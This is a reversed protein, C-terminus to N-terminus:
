RNKSEESTSLPQTPTIETSETGGTTGHPETLQKIWWRFAAHDTRVSTRARHGGDATGMRGHDDLRVPHRLTFMTFPLRLAATLTLTARLAIGSGSQQYGRDLHERLMGAWERAGSAALDTLRTDLDDGRALTNAPDTTVTATVLYLDRGPVTTVVTAAAAPDLQLPDHPDHGPAGGSQVILLRGALAPDATLLQALVTPTHCGAWRVLTDTAACVAAVAPGAAETSVIPVTDRGMLGLLHTALRATDDDAAVVLALEWAGLAACTLAMVTDPTAGVHLVLPTDRGIWRPPGAARMKEAMVEFGPGGCREYFDLRAEWIRLADQWSGKM